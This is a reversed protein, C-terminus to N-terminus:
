LWAWEYGYAARMGRLAHSLGGTQRGRLAIEADIMSLYITTEGTILNRGSIKKRTDPKHGAACAHRVNEKRTAWELNEVRNDFRLFNIHNVEECDALNPLFAQAVLRHITKVSRSKKGCKYLHVCLYGTVMKNPSLTKNSKVSWVRGLNSVSYLDEYGFIAKWIENM